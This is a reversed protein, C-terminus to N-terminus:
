YATPIKLFELIKKLVYILSKYIFCGVMYTGYIPWFLILDMGDIGKSLRSVIFAFIIGIVFYLVFLGTVLFIINM